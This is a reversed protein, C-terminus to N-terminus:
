LNAEIWDAIEAFSLPRSEVGIGDNKMSLIKATGDPLGLAKDLDCGVLGTPHTGWAYGPVGYNPQVEQSWEKSNLVDCAVGLCCFCDDPDRLRERGQRYQDGRLAQVWRQKFAPDIKPATDSSSEM